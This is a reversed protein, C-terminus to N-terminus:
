ATCVYPTNSLKDYGASVGVVMISIYKWGRFPNPVSKVSKVAVWFVLVRCNCLPLTKVVVRQRRAIHLRVESLAEWILGRELFQRM